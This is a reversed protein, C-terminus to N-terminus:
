EIFLGKSINVLGTGSFHGFSSLDLKPSQIRRWLKQMNPFRIDDILLWRCKRSLNADRLRQLFLEEFVDNKPGDLMIFEAEDLLGVHENFIEEEALDKKIFTLRKSEFDSDKLVTWDFSDHEEIDFTFVRSDAQSNDLMVRASCGRYTGIDICLKPNLVHILGGLLRYHEGPYINAYEFDPEIRNFSARLLAEIVYPYDSFNQTAPDDDLSFFESSIVHRPSDISM